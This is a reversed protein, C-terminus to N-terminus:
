SIIQPLPIDKFNLSSAIEFNVVVYGEVTKLNQGSIVDCDVALRCCIAYVHENQTTLIEIKKFVASAMLECIKLMTTGFFHRCLSPFIVNDAVEPLSCIANIGGAM